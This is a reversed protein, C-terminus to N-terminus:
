NRLWSQGFAEVANEVDIGKEQLKEMGLTGKLLNLTSASLKTAALWAWSAEDDGAEDAEQSEAICVLHMGGERLLGYREEDSLYSKPLHTM